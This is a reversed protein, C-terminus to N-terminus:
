WSLSYLCIDRLSLCPGVEGMLGFLGKTSDLTYSSLTLTCSKNSCELLIDLMNFMKKDWIKIIFICVQQPSNWMHLSDLLYLDLADTNARSVFISADLGM